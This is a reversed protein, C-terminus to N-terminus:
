EEDAEEFLNETERILAYLSFSDSQENVIALSTVYTHNNINNFMYASEVMDGMSM